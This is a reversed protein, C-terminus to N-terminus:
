FGKIGARLGELVYTKEAHMTLLITKTAPLQRQIARAADLGNLVPMTIDLVAIEPRMELALQVAEQGNSAEALVRYGEKELIAKLGDRVIEHDDALLIQIPM